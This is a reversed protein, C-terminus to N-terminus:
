FLRTKFYPTASLSGNLGSDAVVWQGYIDLGRLIPDNVVPVTLSGYGRDNLAGYPMVVLGASLGLYINAGLITAGAPNAVGDLLFLAPAHPLGLNMGITLGPNGLFSPQEMIMRPTNGNSGITGVGEISSMRNSETFLKPRTFPGTESVVRPDTLAEMFNVLDQRDNQNLNLPRVRRDKNDNFDGGRNYFNVVDMLTAMQGNHFYPARLAVNRLSPTKFEGRDGNQSTVGQRGNDEAVPRVGTNHFQNDTQLAGQHCADCRGRFLNMGRRQSASLATRDGRQFSDFPSQDSILTREYTALAFAIRRPTIATTGFAVQFLEPYGKTGLFTALPGPINEALALPRANTLRNVVEAWTDGVSCMEVSAVPPVVSQSELAGRDPLVIQNSNPDRFEGSARGDWFLLPFFAANVVTSARRRTVQHRLGFLNSREYRGGTISNIQGLSGLVDDPTMLVGDLGPHRGTLPDSGGADFIHCTACAMRRSSSMQEEFFLAKGLFTKEATIPNGPPVPVPPFRGGPQAGLGTVVALLVAVSVVWRLIM